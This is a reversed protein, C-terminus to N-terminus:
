PIFTCRWRPLDASAPAPAAGGPANPEDSRAVLRAIRALAADISPSPTGTRRAGIVQELVQAGDFLADVGEPTLMAEGQRLARLYDELHHALDEAVRLEVMGSIGKLSHFHRFLEDLVTRNVADRGISTELALLLRRAGM